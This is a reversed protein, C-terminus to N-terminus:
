LGGLESGKSHASNGDVLYLSGLVADLRAKFTEKFRSLAEAKGMDITVIEGKESIM